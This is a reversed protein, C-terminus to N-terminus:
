QQHSNYKTIVTNFPTSYLGIWDPLSHLQLPQFAVLSAIITIEIGASVQPKICVDNGRDFHKVGDEDETSCYRSALWSRRLCTRESALLRSATLARMQLM